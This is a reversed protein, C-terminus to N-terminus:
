KCRVTATLNPSKDIQGTKSVIYGRSCFLREAMLMGIREVILKAEEAEYTNSGARKAASAAHSIKISSDDDLIIYYGAGSPEIQPAMYNKAGLALCGSIPIVLGLWILPLRTM